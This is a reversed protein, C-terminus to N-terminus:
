GFLHKFLNENPNKSLQFTVRSTFHKTLLVELIKKEDYKVKRSTLITTKTSILKKESSHYKFKLMDLKLATACVQHFIPPALPWPTRSPDPPMSGSFIKSIEIESIANAADQFLM